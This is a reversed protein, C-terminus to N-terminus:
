SSMHSFDPDRGNLGQVISIPNSPDHNSENKNSVKGDIGLFGIWISGRATYVFVKQSMYSMQGAHIPKMYSMKGIIYCENLSTLKNTNNGKKHQKREHHHCFFAMIEPELQRIQFIWSKAQLGSHRAYCSGMSSMRFFYQDLGATPHIKYESTIGM